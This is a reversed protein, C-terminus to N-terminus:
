PTVSEVVVDGSGVVTTGAVVQVSGLLVRGAAPVQKPTVAGPVTWSSGVARTANADTVAVSGLAENVFVDLYGFTTTGAPVDYGDVLAMYKSAAPKNVTVSEESDGDASEGVLTCPTDPDCRYVYLDLDAGRDSTNGITFRISTSGAPVAVEYQKQELNEISEVGRKASGLTSGVARGDFSGFLNKLEYSRNLPVNVVASEIVDPNPSVSAGLISARLTFAARDVDSTRRAEVTLEWVGPQPNAVTRSHSPCGATVPPNYCATSATSDIPLGYPHFRLFRVQGTTGSLDVKFAPTGAPVRVFLRKAENRGVTDSYTVSYNPEAFPEAAIVTNMTQYDVGSTAPDDLNLVASHVGSKKPAVTVVVQAPKNLPLVVSPGATFTGDNGVWSLNYRIGASGGSTRTFTYTRTGSDGAKWGERDYIGVGRNPTALFQSIVTNVSVSSTISVPRVTKQLM